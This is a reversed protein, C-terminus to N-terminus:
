REMLQALDAPLLNRQERLVQIAVNADSVSIRQGEAWRNWVDLSEITQRAQELRFDDGARARPRM